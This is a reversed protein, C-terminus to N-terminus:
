MAGSKVLGNQTSLISKNQEKIILVLKSYITSTTSIFYYRSVNETEAYKQRWRWMNSGGGGSVVVETELCKRQRESFVQQNMFSLLNHARSSGHIVTHGGTGTREKINRLKSFIPGIPDSTLM